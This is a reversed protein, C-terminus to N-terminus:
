QKGAMKAAKSSGAKKNAGGGGEERPRKSPSQRQQQKGGGQQAGGQQPKSGKGAQKDGKGKGAKKEGKVKGGPQQRQQQAEQGSQQQQQQQQGGPQPKGQPKGQKGGQQQKAAAKKLEKLRAADPKTRALLEQLGAGAVLVDLQKSVKDPLELERATAIGKALANLTEPGLVEALRTDPHLRKAGELCARAAKVAAAHRDKTRFPGTAAAVLAAGLAATSGKVLQRLQQQAAPGAAAAKFAGDALVQLAEGQLFDSRARACYQLLLQAAPPQGGAQVQGALAAESVKAFMEELAKRQLRCKHSKGFFDAVVTSAAAAAAAAPWGGAACASRMLHLLAQAGASVV